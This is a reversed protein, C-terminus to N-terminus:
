WIWALGAPFVHCAGRRCQDQPIRFSIVGYAEATFTLDLSDLAGKRLHFWGEAARWGFVGHVGHSRFRDSGKAGFQDARGFHVEEAEFGALAAFLQVSTAPNM